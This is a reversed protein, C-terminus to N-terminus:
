AASPSDMWYPFSLTPLTPAKPVWHGQRWEAYGAKVVFRVCDPETSSVISVAGAGCARNWVQLMGATSNHPVNFEAITPATTPAITASITM